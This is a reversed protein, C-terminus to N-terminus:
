FWKQSSKHLNNIATDTKWGKKKKPREIKNIEKHKQLFAKVVCRDLVYRDRQLTKPIAESENRHKSQGYHWISWQGKAIKKGLLAKEWEILLPEAQM